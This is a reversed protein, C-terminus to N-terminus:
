AADSLLVQKASQFFDEDHLVNPFQCWEERNYLSTLMFFLKLIKRLKESAEADEIWTDIEVENELL